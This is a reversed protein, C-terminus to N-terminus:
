PSVLAALGKQLHELVTLQERATVIDQIDAVVVVVADLLEIRLCAGVNSRQDRGAAAAQGSRAAQDIAVISLQEHGILVDVERCVALDVAIVVLGSRDEARQYRCGARVRGERGPAHDQIVLDDIDRVQLVVGVRVVFPSILSYLAPLPLNRPLRNGM